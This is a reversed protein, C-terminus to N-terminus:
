FFLEAVLLNIFTKNTELWIMNYTTHKINNLSDSRKDHTCHLHHAAGDASYVCGVCCSELGGGM